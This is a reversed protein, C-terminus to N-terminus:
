GGQYIPSVLSEKRETPQTRESPARPTWRLTQQVLPKPYGNAAFVAELHKMERGRTSGACISRARDGLCRVIGILIRPHHYSDFHIYRDTHTPKRYVSTRAKNGVRKVLVDLFAIKDEKEEEMTFQIAPNQQNLHNHFDRLAEQSHPWIVFTYDVYRVWMRPQHTFSSLARDELAEMFINAVVPSLPSGMATGELQEFFDEGFQFYTTQLCLETLRCIEAPPLETRNELTDDQALRHSIAELAENVPVKTFLSVVDFSIMKDDEALPAEHIRQAFDRSNKIYSETHGSLPTLIKALQKSLLHAPSGIASVIPRFPTDAKHIKPLGYLQPPSSSQPSLYLRQERSMYGRQEANKLAQTIKSEVRTTPDKKLKRYTDDALMTELKNVYETRDM